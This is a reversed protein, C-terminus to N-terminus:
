APAPARRRSWVILAIGILVMPLSLTQGMTLGFEGLRIVYGEPDRALFQDDPMRWFEVAIRSLGYITLFTGTIFWPRKLAGRRTVLYWIVLGLLLGELGAEYLQTPHRACIGPWAPPCVSGMGPFVVGWPLNTPHGWLEANIFNTIRGLGLGVPIVMAMSDGVASAPIGNKWAFLFGAATAGALGGHFSMGGEWVQLIQLPHALYYGPQYFLVFGLRGGLIVGLIIWTLLSEVHVPTMPATNDRWLHPRKVAAVILRWGIVFGAIYALAYWRLAFTFFGLDLSFIEPRLYSPFDIVLQM